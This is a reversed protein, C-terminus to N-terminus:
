VLKHEYAYATAAARSPLDLKTFINSLHRAVTKESIALESAIARNTRGSAVLRLVEVERGTLPGTAPAACAAIMAAVSRADPVAGLREFGDLAADLELRAGDEDGLARSALGVLVRVRATEYPAALTQWTALAEGFLPLAGAADGAALAVRGAAIAAQAQLVPAGIERAAAALEACATRAGELDRCAVLVEVCAGLARSRARPDRIEALMSRVVGEAVAAQDQALRLLALGPYPKRGAHSAHRYCEDARVFDGRLRYLEGRQYCAAGADISSESRSSLDAARDSEASARPWDGQLQLVESRHILCQTRFPVMDPYRDIHKRGLLFFTAPVQKEKLVDLLQATHKSPGADFTLAICKAKRCDVSGFTGTGTKGAEQRVTGPSTTEVRTCGTLALAFALAAAPLV